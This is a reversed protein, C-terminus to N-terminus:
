TCFVAERQEGSDDDESPFKAVSTLLMQWTASASMIYRSEFNNDSNKHGM